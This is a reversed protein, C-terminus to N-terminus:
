SWAGERREAQRLDEDAAMEALYAQAEAWDADVDYMEVVRTSEIFQVGPQRSALVETVRYVETHRQRYTVSTQREIVPALKSM